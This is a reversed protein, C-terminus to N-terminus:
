AGPAINMRRAIEAVGHPTVQAYRIAAPGREVLWGSEIAQQTARLRSNIRVLWGEREMEKILDTRRTWLQRAGDTLSVCGEFRKDERRHREDRRELARKYIAEKREDTVAPIGCRKALATFRAARKEFRARFKTQADDPNKQM